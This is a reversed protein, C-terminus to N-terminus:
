RREKSGRAVEALLEQEKSRGEALQAEPPPLIPATLIRMVCGLKSSCRSIDNRDLFVLAEGIGDVAAKTRAFLDTNTVRLVTADLVPDEWALCAALCSALRKRLEERM